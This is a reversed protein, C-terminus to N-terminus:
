MCSEEAKLYAKTSIDWCLTEHDSGTTLDDEAAIVAELVRDAVAWLAVILDITTPEHNADPRRTRTGPEIKLIGRELLELTEQANKTNDNGSWAPHHPKFDGGEVWDRVGSLTQFRKRSKIPGSRTPDPNPNYLSVIMVRDPVTRVWLAVMDRELCVVEFDVRPNVSLAIMAWPKKSKDKIGGEFFYRFNGDQVLKWM